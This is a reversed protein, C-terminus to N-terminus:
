CVVPQSNSCQLSGIPVSCALQQCVVPQSNACQMSATPFSFFSVITYQQVLPQSEVCQQNAVLESCSVVQKNAAPVSSSLQQWMVPYNGCCQQNTSTGSTALQHWLQQHNAVPQRVLHRFNSNVISIAKLSSVSLQIIFLKMMYVVLFVILRTSEYTKCGMAPPIWPSKIRTAKTQWFFCMDPFMPKLSKEVRLDTNSKSDCLRGKIDLM